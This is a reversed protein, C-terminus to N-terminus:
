AGTGEKKFTVGQDILYDLAEELILLALDSGLVTPEDGCWGFMRAKNFIVRQSDFSLNTFGLPQAKQLRTKTM